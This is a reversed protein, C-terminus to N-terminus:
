FRAALPCLLNDLCGLSDRFSLLSPFNQLRHTRFYWSLGDDCEYRRAPVEIESAVRPVPFVTIRATERIIRGM